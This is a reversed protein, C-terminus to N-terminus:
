FRLGTMLLFMSFNKSQDVIGVAHLVHPYLPPQPLSTGAPSPFRSHESFTLSTSTPTHVTQPISRFYGQLIDFLTGYYM